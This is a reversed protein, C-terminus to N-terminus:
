NAEDGQSPHGGLVVALLFACLGCDCCLLVM